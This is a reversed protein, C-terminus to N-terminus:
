RLAEAVAAIGREVEDFSTSLPSLGIRLDTAGVAELERALVWELGELTRATMRPPEDAIPAPLPRPVPHVPPFPAPM